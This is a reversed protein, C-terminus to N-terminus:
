EAFTLFRFLPHRTLNSEDGGHPGVIFGHLNGVRTYVRVYIPSLKVLRIYICTLIENHMSQGLSM